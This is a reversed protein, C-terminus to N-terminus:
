CALVVGEETIPELFHKTVQNQGILGSPLNTPFKTPPTLQWNRM